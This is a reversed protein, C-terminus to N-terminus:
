AEGQWGPLVLLPFRPFRRFAIKDPLHLLLFEASGYLQVRRIMPVYFAQNESLNKQLVDFKEKARLCTTLAICM